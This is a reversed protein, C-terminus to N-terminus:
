IYNKGYHQQQKSMTFDKTQRLGKVTEIPNNQDPGHDILGRVHQVSQISLARQPLLCRYYRPLPGDPGRESYHSTNYIINDDTNLQLMNNFYWMIGLGPRLSKLTFCPPLHGPTTTRITHYKACYATRSPTIGDTWAFGKGWVEAIQTRLDDLVPNLTRFFLILHYHPRLTNPGYEGLCYYRIENPEYHNRLRKLFNQIDLKKLVGFTGHKKTRKRPMNAEDYTLTLFFTSTARKAEDTLRM